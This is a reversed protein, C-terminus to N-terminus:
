DAQDLTDSQGEPEGQQQQAAAIQANIHQILPVALKYPLEGVALQLLQMQQENFKLTYEM